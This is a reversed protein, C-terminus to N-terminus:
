KECNTDEGLSIRCKDVANVLTNNLRSINTLQKFMQLRIKRNNKLKEKLNAVQQLLKKNQIKLRRTIEKADDDRKRIKNIIELHEGFIEKMKSDDIKTMVMAQLFEFQNDKDM